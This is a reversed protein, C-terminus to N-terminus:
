WVQRFCAAAKIIQIIPFDLSNLALNKDTQNEYCEWGNGQVTVSIFIYLNHLNISTTKLDDNSM